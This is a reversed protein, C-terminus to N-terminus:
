VVVASWDSVRLWTASVPDYIALVGTGLGAGEAPKRGNSIWRISVGDTQTGALVPANALTCAAVGQGIESQETRMFNTATSRQMDDIRRNLRKWVFDIIDSRNSMM